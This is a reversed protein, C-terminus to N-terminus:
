RSLGQDLVQTPSPSQGHSTEPTSRALVAATAPDDPAPTLGLAVTITRAAGLSRDAANRVIAPDGNAWRAVYAFSYSGTDLGATACVLFAVSEAEVEAVGRCLGSSLDAHLSVHALEHALTKAAQAPDVDPRVRVTRALFDTQGYAGDCHERTLTFGARAVERALGEYLALPAEGSLPTPGVEPLEPGETQSVDFVHALRFGALVRPRAAADNSEESHSDLRRPADAGAEPQVRRLVPALIVLGQEGRRVQRGMSQWTRYGAVQTADPRQFHILLVNNLSYRHFRGAVALM